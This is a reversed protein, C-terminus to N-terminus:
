YPAARVDKSSDRREDNPQTVEEGEKCHQEKQREKREIKDFAKHGETYMIDFFLVCREIKIYELEEGYEGCKSM